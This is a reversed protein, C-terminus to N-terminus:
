RHTGSYREYLDSVQNVWFEEKKNRSPRPPLMELDRALAYFGTGPDNGNLYLVLASLMLSTHPWDRMVIQYLLHGMAAREDAHTFDFGPLGTRRELATNLETYSTTRRLRAREILFARGAEELQSWTDDDRGYMVDGVVGPTHPQLVTGPWVQGFRATPTRKGASAASLYRQVAGPIRGSQSVQQADQLQPAPHHNM